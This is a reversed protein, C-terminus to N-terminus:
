CARPRRRPGRRCEGPAAHILRSGRRAFQGVNQKEVSSYFVHPGARHPVLPKSQEAVGVLLSDSMNSKSLRTFSTHDQMTRVQHKKSPTNFRVNQLLIGGPSIDHFIRWRVSDFGTRHNKTHLPSELIARRRRRLGADTLWQNRLALPQHPHGAALPPLCVFKGRRSCFGEAHFASPNM